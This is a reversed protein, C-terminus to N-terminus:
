QKWLRITIVLKESHNRFLGTHQTVNDLIQKFTTGNSLHFYFSPCHKYDQVHNQSKISCFWRTTPKECVSDVSASVYQHGSWIFVHVCLGTIIVCAQWSPRLQDAAMRCGRRSTEARSKVFIFGTRSRRMLGRCNLCATCSICIRADPSYAYSHRLCFNM